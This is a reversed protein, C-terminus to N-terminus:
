GYNRRFLKNMLYKIYIRIYGKTEGIFFGRFLSSISDFRFPVFTTGCNCHVFKRGTTEEFSLLFPRLDSYHIYFDMYFTERVTDVPCMVPAVGHFSNADHVFFLMRNERPTISEALFLGSGNFFTTEGMWADLWKEHAYYICNAIHIYEGSQVTTHDIHSGLFGGRHMTHFPAYGGFGSMELLSFVKGSWGTMERVINKSHSSGFFKIAKQIENPLVGLKYVRKKKEIETKSENDLLTEDLGKLEKLLSARQKGPLFDDIIKLM